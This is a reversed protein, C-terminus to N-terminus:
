SAGGKPIFEDEEGLHMLLPADLGGVEGLYKETDGGHYAVAADVKYRAATIFAMLAGFCYGQLAIKGTSEPLEVATRVTEMIDKAGADRGYAGYLRLGHQWDAESTVNLDVEGRRHAPGHEDPGAHHPQGRRQHDRHHPALSIPRETTGGFLACLGLAGDLTPACNRRFQPSHMTIEMPLLDTMRKTTGRAKKNTTAM